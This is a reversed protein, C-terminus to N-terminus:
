DSKAQNPRLPQKQSAKSKEFQMDFEKRKMDDRMSLHDEKLPSRVDSKDM